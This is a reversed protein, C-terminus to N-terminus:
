EAEDGSTKRSVLLLVHYNFFPLFFFYLSSECAEECCPEECRGHCVTFGPDYPSLVNGSDKDRWRWVSAYHGNQLFGQWSLLIFIEGKM